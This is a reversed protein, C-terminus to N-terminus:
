SEVVEKIIDPSILDGAQHIRAQLLKLFVLHKVCAGIKVQVYNPEYIRFDLEAKLELKEFWSVITAGSIKNDVYMSMDPLCEGSTNNWGCMFCALWNSGIGRPYASLYTAGHEKYIRKHAETLRDQCFLSLRVSSAGAKREELIDKYVAVEKDIDEYSSM